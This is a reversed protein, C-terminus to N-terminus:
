KGRDVIDSCNTVIKYVLEQKTMVSRNVSKFLHQITDFRKPLNEMIKRRRKALSIAPDKEEILKQEKERIQLDM